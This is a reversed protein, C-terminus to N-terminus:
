LCYHHYSIIDYMKNEILNLALDHRIYFYSLKRLKFKDKKYISLYNFYLEYESSGGENNSEINDIFIEYFPKNNKHYNEVLKFLSELISKQFIMHHCIGSLAINHRILSPHLKNMHKFYSINNEDAYSYLPIGDNDFFYTNKVIATDSDIVLYNDLIGDIYFCAYLKILQQLYWGKRHWDGFKDNLYSKFCFLNEDITICGDISINKDYSVIYINRHNIVNMKAYKITTEIKNNDNPGLPIVIDFQM